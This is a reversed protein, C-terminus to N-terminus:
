LKTNALISVVNQELTQRCKGVNEKLNIEGNMLYVQLFGSFLM